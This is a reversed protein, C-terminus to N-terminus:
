ANFSHLLRQGKWICYAEDPGLPRPSTTDLAFWQAEDDGAVVVGPKGARRAAAVLALEGFFSGLKAPTIEGFGEESLRRSIRAAAAAHAPTFDDAAIEHIDTHLAQWGAFAAYMDDISLGTLDASFAHVLPGAIAVNAYEGQPLIYRFRFVFCDRPEDYSPWRLTRRDLLEIDSPPMGLQAPESLWSAVEAEARAAPTRFEPDIADLMQLEDAYALARLRVSAHRALEALVAAGQEDGLRGLAAAAEVRIRRHQLQLAERLVGQADDNGILGLADCLGCALVVGDAIQRQLSRAGTADHFQATQLDHLQRVIGQLLTLLQPLHGALPHRATRGSRKLYNALDLVAPAAQRHGLAPLLDPFLSEARCQPNQILPALAVSVDAADLPPDNALLQALARVDPAKGSAALAALLQRRPPREPGLHRYFEVIQARSADSFHDSEGAPQRVRRAFEALVRELLRSAKNEPRPPAARLLAGFFEEWQEDSLNPLAAIARDLDLDAIASDVEGAVVRLLPHLEERMLGNYAVFDPHLVTASPM